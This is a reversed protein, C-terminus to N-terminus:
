YGTQMANSENNGHVFFDHNWDNPLMPPHPQQSGTNSSNNNGHSDDPPLMPPHLYTAFLADAVDDQPLMPPHLYDMPSEDPPLMPPHIFQPSNTQALSPGHWFANTSGSGRMLGYSAYTNYPFDMSSRRSHSSSVAQSSPYSDYSSYSTASLPPDTASSSTSVTSMRRRKATRSDGNNEENDSADSTAAFPLPDAPVFNKALIDPHYPGPFGGFALASAFTNPATFSVPNTDAGGLANMLESQSPHYDYEGYSIQTTSDPALTPTLAPEASPSPRRSAGPSASPTEGVGNGVRRADHRSRKRIVDSKM